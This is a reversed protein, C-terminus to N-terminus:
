MFHVHGAHLRQVLRKGIFGTAGTISVTMQNALLLRCWTLIFCELSGFWRAHFVSEMEVRLFLELKANWCPPVGIESCLGYIIGFPWM